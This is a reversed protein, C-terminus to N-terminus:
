LSITEVSGNLRAREAAFVALHTELSEQPGTVIAEPTDGSVAGLFALM